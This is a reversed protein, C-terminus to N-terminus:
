SKTRLISFLFGFGWCFHMTLIALPIGAMLQGDKRKIAYPIAALVMVLLYLGLGATLFFRAWGFFLGLIISLIVGAVFVPPLAQRWRLTSPYRRLMRYKWYGYRFYQRALGQLDPRAYYQSRIMPDLYVRGGSLRIRTNFEYDENTLLTEDFGGIKDILGRFFSGFPVTDVEAPQSAHRYHADGVGFPHSAAASISRGIWNSNGPRIDWVGGINDGLGSQLGRVCREVYDQAPASHADLRVIIEGRANMIATNLAAPINRRINDVLKVELDPHTQQFVLIVERTRDTSQGDAIIVELSPRPYSQQYIAELLLGITKEENFCPIIISVIVPEHLIL